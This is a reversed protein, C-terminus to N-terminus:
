ESGYDGVKNIVDEYIVNGLFDKPIFSVMKEADVTKKDIFIYDAIYINGREKSDIDIEKDFVLAYRYGMKRINKIIVKNNLIDEFSLLILVNEMAYKNDIMKLIKKFKKEKKYLSKPISLIYKKNFNFLTMDKILQISLLNLLALIKDEAVIGETYTKDIIHDSYVKSFSINHQLELGYMEKKTSLKNFNLEFLNTELSKLLYEFMNTHDKQIKIMEDILKEIKDKSLDKCYDSIKKKFFEDRAKVDTLIDKAHELEAILILVDVYVNVMDSYKENKGNYNNILNTAVEVIIGKIKKSLKKSFNKANSDSSYNYYKADIYADVLTKRIAVSGTRGSENGVFINILENLEESKIIMATDIVNKAKKIGRKGKLLDLNIKTLSDDEEVSNEEQEEEQVVEQEATKEKDPKPQEGGKLENKAIELFTDDIESLDVPIVRYLATKALEDELAEDIIIEEEEQEEIEEKQEIEVVPEEVIKIETTKKVTFKNILLNVFKSFYNNEKNSEEVKNKKIASNFLFLTIMFSVLVGPNFLVKRIIGFNALIKVVKGVIQKQEIPEDKASNNDGKTIYKGNYAEIVRHTIYEDGLRYTIIDNLKVKQTLKVIIWDGAKIAEEMSGTQVEFTSYGFFNAYKSGLIKTQIGTYISILLIIGFIVILINLLWDIIKEIHNKQKINM